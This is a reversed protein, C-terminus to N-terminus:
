VDAAEAITQPNVPTERHWWLVDYEEFGSDDRETVPVLEVAGLETTAWDLASQQEFSLDDCHLFGITPSSPVM